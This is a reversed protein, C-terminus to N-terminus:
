MPAEPSTKRIGFGSNQEHQLCVVGLFGEHPNDIERKHWRAVATEQLELITRVDIMPDVEKQFGRKTTAPCRLIITM